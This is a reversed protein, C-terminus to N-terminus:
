RLGWDAEITEQLEGQGLGPAQRVRDRRGAGGWQGRGFTRGIAVGMSTHFPREWGEGSEGEGAGELDRPPWGLGM